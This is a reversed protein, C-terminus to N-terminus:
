FRYSSRVMEDTVSPKYSGDYRHFMRVHVRYEGEEHVDHYRDPCQSPPLAHSLEGDLGAHVMVPRLCLLGLVM